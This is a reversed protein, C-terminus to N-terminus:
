SSRCSSRTAGSTWSASTASSCRRRPSRSCSGASYGGTRLAGGRIAARGAEPQRARRAGRARPRAAAGGRRGDARRPRRSWRPAGEDLSLRPPWGVEDRLRASTPTSRRRARGPRQPLAGIECCTRRPRRRARAGRRHRAGSRADGSAVNVAGEVDRTSCRPSRTASTTPRAPLRAGADGDHRRAGARGRLSRARGVSAVAPRTSTRGTSSSSAAGPSRVSPRAALREAVTRLAHKAAGYLTAPALPTTGGVCRTGDRGTTSPAPGPSCRASGGADAFARLLACRPRSGACTRPRPGSSARSPTGPSTCCTRRACREVICAARRDGPASCTAGTTAVVVRAVEYGRARLPASRGAASSAAAARSSSAAERGRLRPVGRRARLHRRRRGAPWEIGFAPDDWRVGRAAEPVYHHSM